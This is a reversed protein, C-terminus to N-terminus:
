GPTLIRPYCINDDGICPIIKDQIEFYFPTKGFVQLLGDEATHRRSKREHGGQNANSMKPLVLVQGAQFQAVRDLVIVELVFKHDSPALIISSGNDDIGQTFGFDDHSFHLINPNGLEVAEFWVMAILDPYFRFEALDGEWEIEM